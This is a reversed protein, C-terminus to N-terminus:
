SQSGNRSCKRLSNSPPPIPWTSISKRHLIRASMPPPGWGCNGGLLTMIQSSWSPLHMPSSDNRVGTRPTRSRRSLIITTVSIFINTYLNASRLNICWISVTAFGLPSQSTECNASEKTSAQGSKCLPLIRTSCKASCFLVIIEAWSEPIAQKVRVSSPWNSAVALVLPVSILIKSVSLPVSSRSTHPHIKKNKVVKINKM